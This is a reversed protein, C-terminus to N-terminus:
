FNDIDEEEFFDMEQEDFNDEFFDTEQEDFDDSLLEDGSNGSLESVSVDGEGTVDGPVIDEWSELVVATSFRPQVDMVQIWAIPRLPGSLLSRESRAQLVGRVSLVHNEQLGGQSGKNLFILAGQGLVKRTLDIEGGIVESVVQSRPGNIDVQVRKIPKDILVSGVMIVNISNQVLARYIDVNEKAAKVYHSKSVKKILEVTGQVEINYADTSGKILPSSKKLKGLNRVATLSLGARGRGQKIKVYVYQGVGAVSGSAANEVGIMWGVEKPMQESIYYSLAYRYSTLSRSSPIIDIGSPGFSDGKDQWAPFSPPINKLVRIKKNPVPIEVGDETVETEVVIEESTYADESGEQQRKNVLVYSPVNSEDGPVFIIQSGVEILHPNRIGKNNQSWIKPWFHGDGFLTRSIDWLNDGSRVVYKYQEYDGEKLLKSWEEQSTPENHYNMYLDFFEDERSTATSRNQAEAVCRDSPIQLSFVIFM